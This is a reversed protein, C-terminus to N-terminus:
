YDNSCVTQNKKQTRRKDNIIIKFNLFDAIWFGCDL